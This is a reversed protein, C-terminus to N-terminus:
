SPAPLFRGTATRGTVIPGSPVVAIRGSVIRVSRDGAPRGFHGSSRRGTRGAAMRGSAPRARVPASGPLWGTTRLPTTRLAPTRGAGARRPSGPGRAPRPLRVRAAAPRPPTDFARDIVRPAVPGHALAVTTVPGTEVPGTTARATTARGTTDRADDRQRGGPRNFAPRDFSPREFSPRDAARGIMRGARSGSTQGSAPRVRAVAARNTAVVRGPAGGAPAPPDRRAAAPRGSRAPRRGHDIRSSGSRAPRPARATLWPPGGTSALAPRRAHGRRRDRPRALEDRLRDSEAWNRATRAAARAELLAEQEPAPGARSEPGIGLVRDLDHLFSTM